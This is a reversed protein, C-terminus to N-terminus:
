HLTQANSENFVAIGVLHTLTEGDDSVPLVLRELHLPAGDGFDFRASQYIPAQLRACRRYTIELEGLIDQDEHASGISAGNLPRGLRTTLETGVSLFRLALPETSEVRVIFAHPGLGFRVPDLAALGPLSRGDIRATQWNLYLQRLAPTNLRRLLRDTPGDPPSWRGLRELIATSLTTFRLPKALVVEGALEPWTEAGTMFVVPLGPWDTRLHLALMSGSGGAMRLDTLLLDLRKLTRVLAAATEASGAELVTYGLDRLFAATVQRLAEDDDVVLVTADGHLAPDPLAAEGPAAELSDIPARPLIIDVRTGEGPRSHIRLCGGLRAAFGQVMPLGLGTGQGEPKTTFYIETARAMIDPPMGFGTDSVSIAVYQGASLEGPLETATLNRAGITLTGQGSMADRANVALNLLAVELQRQDALVPWVDDAVEFRCEVNVGAAHHVLDLADMLMRQLNLLGPSLKERRVFNLLQSILHTARDVAKEGHEVIKLLMPTDARARILSYSGSIATLVNNFDHAVGSTLHGLAELKQAQLVHTQLDERRRMEAALEHAADELVRTRQEVVRELEDRSQTLIQRAEVIETIDTSTGFWNTIIGTADRAPMARALVWRYVGDFRRLRHEREFIQGTILSQRRLEHSLARDEPHVLESWHVGALGQTTGLFELFRANCYINNGQADGAWVMQPMSDTLARFRAESEALRALTLNRATVDRGEPVLFRIMGSKDRVPRLSFDVTAVRNDAALVQVEYQVHAGAAAEAVAAQLRAPAGPDPARAFWRTQWLSRGVISAAEDGAFELAAPNAALITGDLSLLGMLEFTSEFIGRFRAESEILASKVRAREVAAWTREAIDGLLSVEAPAWARPQRQHAFLVALLKGDKVLPVSVSAGVHAAAYHAAVAANELAPLEAAVDDFAVVEGRRLRAVISTGFDDLSYSGEMRPMGGAVRDELITFRAGDATIEAYGARDAALHTGLLFATEAMIRRADRLPNIRDAFHLRFAQNAADAAPPASQLQRLAARVVESASRYQGGSVCKEVYATLEPTLSVNLASRSPV